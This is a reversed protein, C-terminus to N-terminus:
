ILLWHPCYFLSSYSLAQLTPSPADEWSPSVHQTLFALFGCKRFQSCCFPVSQTFVPSCHALWFSCCSWPGLASASKTHQLCLLAVTATATVWPLFVSVLLSLCALSAWVSVRHVCYLAMLLRLLPVIHDAELKFLSSHSSHPALPLHALSCLPPPPPGARDPQPHSPPGSM